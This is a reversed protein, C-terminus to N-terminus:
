SKDASITVTKGDSHAAVTGNQDTRYIKIGYKELRELTGNEPLGYKNDAGVSIIAYSSNVAKLFKEGTGTKSGHHGVKLVDCSLKTGNALMEKESLGQADGTLLFSTDGYVARFVISYNNLNDYDTSNPATVTLTSSGLSYTAGAKPAEVSYNNEGIYDVLSEWSKTNSEKNNMIIKKTKVSKLVQEMGGFHDAHPHTIVAYDLSDVSYKHLYDVVKGGSDPTGADILMNHGDCQLLISDGQGVDLVYMTFASDPINNETVATQANENQCGAM